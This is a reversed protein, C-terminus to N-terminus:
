YCYTNLGDGLFQFKFVSIFLEHTLFSILHFIIQVLPYHFCSMYYNMGHLYHILPFKVVKFLFFPELDIILLSAEVKFVLLFCMLVLTLLLFYFYNFFILTSIWLVYFLFIFDVDLDQNKPFLCNVFM